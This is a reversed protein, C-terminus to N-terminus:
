IESLFLSVVTATQKNFDFDVIISSNESLYENYQRANRHLM